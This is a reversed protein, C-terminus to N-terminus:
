IDLFMNFSFPPVSPLGSPFYSTGERESSSARSGRPLSPRRMYGIQPFFSTFLLARAVDRGREEREDPGKLSLETLNRHCPFGGGLIGQLRRDSEKSWTRSSVASSGSLSIEFQGAGRTCRKM